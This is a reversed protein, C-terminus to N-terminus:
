LQTASIRHEVSDKANLTSLYAALDKLESDNGVFPPMIGIYPNADKETSHLTKLFGEIADRDREGVLRKVARYGSETHCSMCQYRFLMRGRTVDDVDGSLSAKTWKSQSLFGTQNLSAVQDKRIGYSYVYNYIVYPKRLLERMWETTGTVLLGSLLFMTAIRPTLGKPNLFPGFFAFMIITGSLILSLYLARALISFNGVGSSHIGNFITDVVAQPVNKLYWFAIIPGLFFIPLLWKACFRVVYVKVDEEEIQSSTILAYMGALAFMILLRLICSPWFTPNFFGDLWYHTQLWNGPTLM